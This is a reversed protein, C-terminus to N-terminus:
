WVVFGETCGEMWTVFEAVFDRLRARWGPHHADAWLVGSRIEVPLVLWGDNSGLKYSPIGPGEGDPATRWAHIAQNYPHVEGPDDEDPYETLGFDALQPFPPADAVRVIGVQWLQERAEGM